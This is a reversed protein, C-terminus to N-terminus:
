QTNSYNACDNCVWEDYENLKLDKLGVAACCVCEREDDNYYDHEDEEEEPYVEQQEM